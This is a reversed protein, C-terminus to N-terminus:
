VGCEDAIQRMAARYEEDTAEPHARSWTAKRREYEAWGSSAHRQFAPTTRASDQRLLRLSPERQM